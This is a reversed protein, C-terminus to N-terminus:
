ILPQNAWVMLGFIYLAGVEFIIALQLHIDNKIRKILKKM